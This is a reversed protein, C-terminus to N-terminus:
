SSFEYDSWRQMITREGDGVGENYYAKAIDEILQKNKNYFDPNDISYGRICRGNVYLHIAKDLVEIRVM